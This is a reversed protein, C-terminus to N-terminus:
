HRTTSTHEPRQTQQDAGTRFSEEVRTSVEDMQSILKDLQSVGDNESVPRINERYKKPRRAKLMFILLVDSKGKIARSIAEDELGDTGGELADDWAAKFDPDRDRAQYMGFRTLGVAKAALTISGGDALVQLFRGRKELTLKSM